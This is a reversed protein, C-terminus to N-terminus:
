VIPDPRPTPATGNKIRAPIHASVPLYKAIEFPRLGADLLMAIAKHHSEYLYPLRKRNGMDFASQAKAILEVLTLPTVSPEFHFATQDKAEHKPPEVSLLRLLERLLLMQSGTLEHSLTEIIEQTNM